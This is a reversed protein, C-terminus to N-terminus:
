RGEPKPLPFILCTTSAWAYLRGAADVLRGEAIGVQRTVSVVKAEARVPGTKDTLPRTYNIKLELTTYGFGQELTTQVACGLASDLLTAIYGGHVSGIPNYYDTKPTGQFVMTGHGAEVPVFDLTHMIPPSPLEGRNIRELFRLGSSSGIEEPAIKGPAALLLRVERERALWKELTADVAADRNPPETKMPIRPDDRVDGRGQM